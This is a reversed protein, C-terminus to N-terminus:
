NILQKHSDLSHTYYIYQNKISLLTQKFISYEDLKVISSLFQETQQQAQQIEEEDNFDSDDEDDLEDDMYDNQKYKYDKEYKEQAILNNVMITLLNPTLLNPQKMILSSMTIIFLKIDYGPSYHTELIRNYVAQFFETLVEYTKEPIKYLSSLIIGTIRSKLHENIDQKQLLQITQFLIQSLINTKLDDHLEQIGLQILLAGEGQEIDGHLDENQLNQFALQFYISQQAENLFYNRGFHMYQNLTEFLNCLRGQQKKIINQFYPLIQMQLETVVSLKSICGSIFLVLDEDYDIKDCFALMSYLQALHQELKGLIGTFEDQEALQRLVNWCRNLYIHRQQDGSNIKQQETIVRQNLVQILGVLLNDNQLFQNPYKKLLNTITEFHREYTSYQLGNCLSPFLLLVLDKTKNKLDDDEFIDKLADISQYLVVPEQPQVFSIMIQLYANMNQSQTEKKFLNDCYYGFFLSLRLKIIQEQVNQFYLLNDTLLQEMLQVIDLRKQILYSMITLIVLSSEIRDIPTYEKFLKKDQLAMVFTLQQEKLQVPNSSIMNISHQSIIVALNALFTTSGDIHDCLTELLSAAATKPVDSEQKDVSDLALNVFEEPQEKMQQYEKQSTILFPYIADTILAIKSDSFIQYQETQSGLNALLKMIYTMISTLYPKNYIQHISESNTYALLSYILLQTITTLYPGFAGKKVENKNRSNLLVQLCLFYIKFVQCKIENLQADFHDNGTNIISCNQIQKGTQPSYSLLIMLVGSFSNLQFLINQIPQTQEKQSNNKDFVKECLDSVVQTYIRITTIFDDPLEKPQETLKTMIYAAQNFFESVWEYGTQVISSYTQLELSDLLIKFFIIGTQFQWHQDQRLFEKMKNEIETKVSKDKRVILSMCKVLSQKCKLPTYQSILVGLISNAHHITLQINNTLMKLVVSNLLSAAQEQMKDQQMAVKAIQQFNQINDILNTVLQKETENRIKNDTNTFVTVLQDYIESAM